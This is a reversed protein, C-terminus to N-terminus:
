WNSHMCKHMKMAMKLETAVTYLWLLYFNFPDYLLMFSLSLSLALFANFHNLLNIDFSFLSHCEMSQQWRWILRFGIWHSSPRSKVNIFQFIHMRFIHTSFFLNENCKILKCDIEIVKWHTLDCFSGALSRILIEDSLESQISVYACLILRLFECPPGMWFGCTLIFFIERKIKWCISKFLIIIKQLSEYAQCYVCRTWLIIILTNFEISCWRLIIVRLNSM